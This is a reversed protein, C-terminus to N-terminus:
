DSLSSKKMEKYVGNEFRLEIREIRSAVSDRRDYQWFEAGEATETSTPKGMKEQVQAKTMGPTLSAYNGPEFAKPACGSQILVAAGIVVAAL